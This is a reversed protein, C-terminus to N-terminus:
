RLARVDLAPKGRELHISHEGRVPKSFNLPTVLLHKLQSAAATYLLDPPGHVMEPATTLIVLLNPVVAVDEAVHRRGDRSARTSCPYQNPKGDAVVNYLRLEM